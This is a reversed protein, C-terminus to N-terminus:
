VYQNAGNAVMSYGDMGMVQGQVMMGDGGSVVGGNGSQSGVGGQFGGSMQGALVSAARNPDRPRPPNGCRDKGYNVKYAAYEPNMKMAEVARMAFQIETFNVFAINKEPIINVLEIEGFSGFDRRLREETITEDITGIYVNRSAGSQVAAAIHVPLMTSRTGWSVRVRKGKVVVGDTNGRHVFASAAAPDVFTAFATNKEPQYKIKELIGGRIVDCIDKTTADPHITGMYVTRVANQMYSMGGGYGQMGMDFQQQPFGGSVAAPNFMGGQSVMGGSGIQKAPACRDRGYNIRRNTWTPDTPLTTVAKMAAVISSMHVFAIRKDGLIKIQDIAGFKSFEQQLVKDTISEDTNGIFVNRSGGSNVATMIDASLNSAKGWGVKVEVNNIALRRATAENYFVQAATSEIFTVFACNKDDLVKISELMGCKIHNCIDEITTNPALQGIYVTRVPTPIGGPIGQQPFNGTGTFQGNGGQYGGGGQYSGSSTNYQGSVGFGGSTYQGTNQYSGMNSYGGMGAMQTPQPQQFGGSANMFQGMGGAPYQPYMETMAGGQNFGMAGGGSNNGGNSSGNSNSMSYGYTGQTTYRQKKVIPQETLQFAYESSRKMDTPDDFQQEASQPESSSPRREKDSSHDSPLSRDANLKSHNLTQIELVPAGYPRVQVM